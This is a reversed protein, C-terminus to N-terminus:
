NIKKKESNNDENLNNESINSENMDNNIENM